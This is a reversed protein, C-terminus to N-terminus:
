KAEKVLRQVFEEFIPRQVFIRSTCLCIEGQNLFCSNITAPVVKSLDADDFIIGANKGGL